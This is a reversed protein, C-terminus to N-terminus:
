KSKADKLYKEVSQRVYKFPCPGTRLLSEHFAVPDFKKGLEEKATYYLDSFELFGIYYPLYTGPSGVIGDFIEQAASGDFGNKELYTELEKISWGEYHIGIDVRCSINWMLCNDIQMLRAVTSNDGSRGYDYLSLAYNEAYVAWGESYGTCSLMKRINSPNLSYYYIHQYMHGPYGEHALTTYMQSLDTSEGNITIKGTLYSDVPPTMYYALMGSMVKGMSEPLYSIVYQDGSIAPFHGDLKPRIYDLIEKPDTLGVAIEGNIYSEFLSPKSYYLSYYEDLLDDFDNELLNIMESCTYETGTMQGVLMEYYRAGNQYGALGKDNTGKGKFSDLADRLTQYASMFPGTVLELNRQEYNKKQTDSLFTLADTKERFTDILYFDSGESLIEDCQEILLDLTTDSPGYGKEVREREWELISDMYDPLQELLSLYDTVDKEAYFEYEALNVPIMSQVGTSVDLYTYFYYYDGSAMNVSQTCTDKLINYTLEQEETLTKPDYSLLEALITTVPYRDEEDPATWRPEQNELHFLSADKVMYHLTLTDQSIENLFLDDLFREFRESESSNVTRDEDTDVDGGIGLFLMCGTSSFLVTLALLLSALIRVTKKM